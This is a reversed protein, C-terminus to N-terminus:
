RQRPVIPILSQQLQLRFRFLPFFDYLRRARFYVIAFSGVVVIGGREAMM